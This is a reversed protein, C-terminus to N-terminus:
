FSKLAAEVNDRVDFVRDFHGIRFTDMLIPGLGCLKLRGKAQHTEQELKALKALMTSSLYQVNTFDLLIKTYGHDAVLSNLEDGIEGVVKLEYMLQSDIFEVVAVGHSEKVRIHKFEPQAM